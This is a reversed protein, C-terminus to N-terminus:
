DVTHSLKKPMLVTLVVRAQPYLVNLYAATVFGPPFKLDKPHTIFAIGNRVSLYRDFCWRAFPHPAKVGLYDLSDLNPMAVPSAAIIDDPTWWFYVGQKQAQEVILTGEGVILHKEVKEWAIVRHNARLIRFLRKKRLWLSLRALVALPVSM